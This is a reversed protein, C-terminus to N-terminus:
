SSQPERNTGTKTGLNVEVFDQVETHRVNSLSTFNRGNFHGEAIAELQNLAVDILRDAEIPDQVVRLSSITTLPM